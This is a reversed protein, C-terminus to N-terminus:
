ELGGISLIAPAPRHGVSSSSVGRWGAALCVPDATTNVDSSNLLPDSQVSNADFGTGKWLTFTTYGAGLSGYQCCATACGNNAENLGFRLNAADTNYCNNDISIKGGTIFQTYLNDANYPYTYLFAYDQSYSTSWDDVVNHHVSIPGVEENGSCSDSAISQDTNYGDVLNLFLFKGARVTNYSM